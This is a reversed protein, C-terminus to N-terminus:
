AANDQEEEEDPGAPSAEAMGWTEAINTTVLGLTPADPYFESFARTMAAILHQEVEEAVDAAAEVVLEDHVSLILQADLGVLAQDLLAMSRLFIDAASSQVPFNSCTTYKLIGDKEWAARLPRGARSHIVGASRGLEDQRRQYPLIAPYACRVAQIAAAAEAESMDVDFKAWASARITRPGAAFVIGFNTAKAATRRPDSKSIEEEPRRRDFGRDPSSHRRRRRVRERMVQEGAEEAFVRLEIQNLDGCVLLRGAPARIASRADRPLQMANPDSCTIRGTKAGCTLYDPYIRGTTPDIWELLKTGFSRWGGARGSCACCLGSRQATRM